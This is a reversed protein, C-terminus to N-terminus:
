IEGDHSFIFYAGIMLVEVGERCGIAHEANDIVRSFIYGSALYIGRDIAAFLFKLSKIRANRAFGPLPLIDKRKLTLEM